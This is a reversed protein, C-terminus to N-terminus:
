GIRGMSLSSLNSYCRKKVGYENYYLYFASSSNYNNYVYEVKERIIDKECKKFFKRAKENRLRYVSVNNEKDLRFLHLITHGCNPCVDLYRLEKYIYTSDPVLEYTRCERLGGCCQVYRM